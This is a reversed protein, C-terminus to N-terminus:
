ALVRRIFFYFLMEHLDKALRVVYKVAAAIKDISSPSLHAKDILDRVHRAHGLAESLEVPATRGSSELEQIANKMSSIAAELEDVMENVRGTREEREM